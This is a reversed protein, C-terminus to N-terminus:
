KLKSLPIVVLNFPKMPQGEQHNFQSNVVYLNNNYVRATTPADVIAARVDDANSVMTAAADKYDNTFTVKSLGTRMMAMYLAGDPGFGIGDGGGNGKFNIKVIEKTSPDIRFLMGDGGNLKGAVNAVSAILYKGDPTFAIGNLNYSTPDLTFQKDEVLKEVGSMDKKVMWVIPSFSDTFYANGDKDLVIDNPSHSAGDKPLAISKILAKTNLDFINVSGSGIKPNSHDMNLVWLHNNAADVVMGSAAKMGNAGPANFWSTDGSQTIKQISGDASSGVYLDGNTPNINCSEPFLAQGMLAISKISDAASSQMTSSKTTDNTTTKSDTNTDGCSALAIAAAAIALSYQKKKM